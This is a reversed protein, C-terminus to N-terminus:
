TLALSRERAIHNKKKHNRVTLHITQVHRNISVNQHILEMVDELLSKSGIKIAIIKRSM